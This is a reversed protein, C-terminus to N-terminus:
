RMALRRGEIVADGLVQHCPRQLQMEQLRQDDDRHRADLALRQLLRRMERLEVRDHQTSVRVERFGQRPSASTSQGVPHM